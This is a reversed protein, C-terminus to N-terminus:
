DPAWLDPQGPDAVAPQPSPVHVRTGRGLAAEVDDLYTVKFVLCPSGHVKESWWFPVRAAEVAASIVGIPGSVTATWRGRQTRVMNHQKVWARQAATTM